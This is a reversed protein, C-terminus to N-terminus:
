QILEIDFILTSYPPIEADGGVVGDVGYGLYYPIYFTRRGGPKMTQIGESFGPITNSLLVIIPQNGEAWTNGFVTGDLLEGKYNVEVYTSASPSDGDGETVIKYQLGSETTFVGEELANTKLFDSDDNGIRVVEVDIVLASFPNIEELSYQGYALQYPIYFTYNAGTNMLLLGESLGAILNSSVMYDMDEEDFDTTDFVVSGDIRSTRFRLLLIDTSQINDGAGETNVKYQLGSDLVVVGENSKNAELFAIGADRNPYYQEIGPDSDSMCSSLVLVWLFSFIVKLFKM